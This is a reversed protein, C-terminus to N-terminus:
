FTETPSWASARIAARTYRIDYPHRAKENIPFVTKLMWLGLQKVWKLVFIWGNEFRFVSDSGHKKAYKAANKRTVVLSTSLMFYLKEFVVPSSNEIGGRACYRELAHERVCLTNSCIGFVAVVKHKCLVQSNLDKPNGIMPIAM